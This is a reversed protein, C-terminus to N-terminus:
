YARVLSVVVGQVKVREAAYVLPSMKPNEAILAIKGDKRIKLRKLTAEENDLLAVVIDGDDAHERHEVIVTDGEWIGAGVMSDGKVQLAYRHLGLLEGLNLVEQGPIAEIPQGAAISGMLPVSMREAPNDEVLELGRQRGPHLVLYGAAALAQVYRHAVGKSSIGIGQAIETLSPAYEHSAIFRRIFDLTKLQRPTLM